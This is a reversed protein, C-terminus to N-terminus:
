SSGYLFVFLPITITLGMSNLYLFVTLQLYRTHICDIPNGVYQRTFITASFTCLIVVTASCNLRFVPADIKVGGVQTFALIGRIADLM